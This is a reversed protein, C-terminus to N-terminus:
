RPSRRARRTEAVDAAYGAGLLVHELLLRVDPHDEVLLICAV